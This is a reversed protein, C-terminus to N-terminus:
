SPPDKLKGTYGHYVVSGSHKNADPYPGFSVAGATMTLPISREAADLGFNTVSFDEPLANFDKGAVGDQGAAGTDGKAGAAGREGGKGSDGKAGAAGNVGDNGAAGADGKAGAAGSVGDKGAQALQNLKARLAPDLRNESITGRHIDRNTITGDAIQKSTLLSAATASTTTAAFACIAGVAIIKTKSM